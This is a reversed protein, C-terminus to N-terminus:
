PVLCKIPKAVMVRSCTTAFSLDGRPVHDVRSSAPCLFEFRISFMCLFTQQLLYGSNKRLVTRKISYNSLFFPASIILCLAPKNTEASIRTRICTSYLVPWGQGGEDFRAYLQSTRMRRVRSESVGGGGRAHTTKWVATTPM